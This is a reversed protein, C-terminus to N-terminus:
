RVGVKFEDNAGAQFPTKSNIPQDLPIPDTQQSEGNKMGYVVMSIKNKTAHKKDKGTTVVM